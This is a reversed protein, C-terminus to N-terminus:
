PMPRQEQRVSKLQPGIAFGTRVLTVDFGTTKWEFTCPVPIQGGYWCVEQPILASIQMAAHGWVYAEFGTPLISVHVSVSLDGGIKLAPGIDATGPGLALTGDVVFHFETPSALLDVKVPGLKLAGLEIESVEALMSISPTTPDVSALINMDVGAISAQFGIGFGAPFTQQGITVAVPAVYLSAYRVQIFDPKGFAQLPRLAVDKSDKVGISISLM